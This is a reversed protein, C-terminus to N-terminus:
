VYLRNYYHPTTLEFRSFTPVKIKADMFPFRSFMVLFFEVMPQYLASSEDRCFSTPSFRPSIPPDNAVVSMVAYNCYTPKTTLYHIILVNLSM